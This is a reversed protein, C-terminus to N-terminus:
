ASSLPEDGVGAIWNRTWEVAELGQDCLHAGCFIMDGIRKERLWKLGTACQREIRDLPMPRRPGYDWMYCGMQLRKGPAIERLRAFNAELGELEEASWSWLSITDCLELYPRMRENFKDATYVVVGLELRRGDITMRERIARVEDVTMAGERGKRAFNFFDDMYLGTINPMTAALRLVHEREEDSTVGSSGTISWQLRKVEKLSAAYSDFPYEPKGAAQIFMINPTGLYQAADVPTIRSNRPLGFMGDYVGPYHAWLWLRDRVREAEAARAREAALVALGATVSWRMFDRRTVM